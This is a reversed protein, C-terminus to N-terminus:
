KLKIELRSPGFDKMRIQILSGGEEALLLNNSSDELLENDKINLTKQIWPYLIKSNLLNHKTMLWENLFSSKNELGNSQKVIDSMLQKLTNYYLKPSNYIKIGLGSKKLSLYKNFTMSEIEFEKVFELIGKKWEESAYELVLKLWTVTLEDWNSVDDYVEALQNNLASQNSVITESYEKLQKHGLVELKISEQEPLNKAKERIRKLKNWDRELSFDKVSPFAMKKDGDVEIPLKQFDVKLHNLFSETNYIYRNRINDLFDLTEPKFYQVALILDYINYSM